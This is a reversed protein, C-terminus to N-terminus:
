VKFLFSWSFGTMCQEHPVARCSFIFFFRIWCQCSFCLRLYQPTESWGLCSFSFSFHTFLANLSFFSPLYSQCQKSSSCQIDVSHLKLFWWWISLCYCLRSCFLDATQGVTVFIRQEFELRLIIIIDFNKTKPFFKQGCDRRSHKLPGSPPRMGPCMRQLLFFNWQRNAENNRRM